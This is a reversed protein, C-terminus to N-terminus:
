SIRGFETHTTEVGPGLCSPSTPATPRTTDSFPKATFESRKSVQFRLTGDNSESAQGDWGDPPFGRISLLWSRTADTKKKVAEAEAEIIAKAMEFCEVVQSTEVDTYNEVRLWVAMYQRFQGWRWANGTPDVSGHDAREAEDMRAWEREIGEMARNLEHPNLDIPEGGGIRVTLVVEPLDLEIRLKEATM